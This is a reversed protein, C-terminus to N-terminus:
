VFMQQLLGKKLEQWKELTEKQKEIVADLASLCDAIKQQEPLSPVMISFKMMHEKDGRPMKVGKVGTMVYSIFKDSAILYHLYESVVDIPHFVLVDTSCVGERDAKWTKRLYPRINSMLTDGKCYCVGKMETEEDLSELGSFNQKMNETGVYNKGVSQKNKYECIDFLSKAELEPFDSGDDAKFRVEQSFLKQMVGKKREEWASVTAQQKEIVTDITSLFDAIKQQEPLSPIYSKIRLFDRPKLTMLKIVTGELYKLSRKIFDPNRVVSEMFVANQETYFIAYIPSLLGKGLKNRNIAGYKLNAPNYIIDDYETRLFKKSVKDKMLFDRKNTKKDEPNIVGQEITFSLLKYEDDICQMERREVFIDSLKKEEWDPFQSGDDAKFRLKPENM